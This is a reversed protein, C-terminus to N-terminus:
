LKAGCKYCFISGDPVEIGCKECNPSLRYVELIKYEDNKRWLINDNNNPNLAIEKALDRNEAIVEIEGYSRREILMKYKSM